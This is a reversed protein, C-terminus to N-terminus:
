ILDMIPGDVNFDLLLENERGVMYDHVRELTRDTFVGFDIWDDGNDSNWVWGVVQGAKTRNLGLEDYVENLFVHGNARLLQNMRGQIQRIYMLNYEPVPSWNPNRLGDDSVERFFKAYMSAGEPGVHKVQKKKPGNKGEEVITREEGEFMLERDKDEGFEEVVRKRYQKFAQDVAAYAATLSANRSLLIKHSGTLCVVSLTGLALPVAYLKALKVATQTRIIILDRRRDEESYKPHDLTKATEAKKESENMVEELKLTARCATVTTAVMGVVGVGFLITPSHVKTKLVARSATRSVSSPISFKM